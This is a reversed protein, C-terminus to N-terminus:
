KANGALAETLLQELVQGDVDALRNIYLCGKGLRHKGLRELLPALKGADCGLYISFAAKRPAFGIRFTVGSHGSAYRYAHRGFGIMGGTWLEPQEGTLRQLLEILEISDSRKTENPLASLFDTVDEGTTTTKLEAVM